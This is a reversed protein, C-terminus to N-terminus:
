VVFYKKILLFSIISNILEFENISFYSTVLFYGDVILIIIFFVFKKAFIFLLPFIKKIPELPFNVSESLLKLSKGNIKPLGLM